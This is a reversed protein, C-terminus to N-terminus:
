FSRFNQSVVLYRRANRSANRGQSEWHPVLVFAENFDKETVDEGKGLKVAGSVQVSFSLREAVDRERTTSIPQQQEAPTLGIVYNPNLPQADFSHVEYHVPTGQAKLLEEYEAVGGEGCVRGNVSIDPKLGGVTTLKTSSSVYYQAPSRGRNLTEYFADVFNQAATSTCQKILELGHSACEFTFEFPPSNTTTPSSFFPNNQQQKGESAVKAQIAPSPQQQSM